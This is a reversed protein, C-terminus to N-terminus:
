VYGLELVIAELLERLPEPFWLGLLLALALMFVTPIRMGARVVYPKQFRKKRYGTEKGHEEKGSEEEVTVRSFAKLLFNSFAAAALILLLLVALTLYPSVEASEMLIFFKAPFLPFPPMGIIAVSGLILTWAARPQLKFVDRMDERMNSRYQRHLIGAAFLLAEKVLVHVLMYFLAWFLALPTGIGIGILLLGMHEVSSFAILRKLNRQQLMSFAALAISFLGAAILILSAQPASDSVRLLAYTRLIGYIGLNQMLGSLIASVSPARAYADPLWTHFPAIGAKAGFGIFVFAFSALLLAPSFSSANEMLEIWSLTGEGLARASLTFLFILGLFAFLMAGSVIFVYKLGADINERASLIAVLVAACVTTLEAFIWFLALNDSFLAATATVLLLNFALYFLKLNKPDLEGAEMLSETYGKAYPAAACFGLVTILEVYLNLHDLYLSPGYRVPLDLTLLATCTLALHLLANGSALANMLRHSKPLLGLALFAGMALLYFRIM